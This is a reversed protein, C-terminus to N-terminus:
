SGSADRIRIFRADHVGNVVQGLVLVTEGNSLNSEGVSQRNERVVTSSIFDWTWTTGDAAVVTIGANSVGQITGREVAITKPGAKTQFTVEGHEGGVLALRVLRSRCFAGLRHAAVAHGNAALREVLKACRVGASSSAATTAATSATGPSTGGTSASAGGTLAVGIAAGSGLLITSAAVTTVLRKTRGSWKARGPGGPPDPTGTAGAGGRDDPQAFEITNDTNDNGNTSDMSDM